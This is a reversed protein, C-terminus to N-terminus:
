LLQEIHEQHNASQRALTHTLSEIQLKLAHNERELFEIRKLADIHLQDLIDTLPFGKQEAIAISEPPIPQAAIVNDNAGLIKGLFQIHAGQLDGNVTWRVLLEYPILKTTRTQM